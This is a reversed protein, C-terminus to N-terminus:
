RIEVGDRSLGLLRARGSRAVQVSALLGATGLREQQPAAGESLYFRELGYNLFARGGSLWQVQGKLFVGSAPRRALAEGGSWVGDAGRTLPVYAPRGEEVGSGARARSVGYGLILYRGRLLDRPDVPETKLTVTAAGFSDLVLPLLLGGALALQAGVAWGLRARPTRPWALRSM